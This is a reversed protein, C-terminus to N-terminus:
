RRGVAPTIHLGPSGGETPPAPPPFPTRARCLRMFYARPGHAFWSARAVIIKKLARWAVFRMLDVECVVRTCRLSQRVPLESQFSGMVERESHAWRM